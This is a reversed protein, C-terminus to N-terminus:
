DYDLFNPDNNVHPHLFTPNHGDVGQQPHLHEIHPIISDTILAPPTHQTLLQSAGLINGGDLLEQAADNIPTPSNRARAQM